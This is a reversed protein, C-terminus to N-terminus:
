KCDDELDVGHIRKWINCFDNFDKEDMLKAIQELDKVQIVADHEYEPIAIIELSVMPIEDVCHSIEYGRCRVEKGDVTVKALLANDGIPEVKFKGFM